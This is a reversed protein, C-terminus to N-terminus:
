KVRRVRVRGGLPDPFSHVPVTFKSVVRDWAEGGSKGGGQLNMTDCTIVLTAPRGDVRLWERAPRNAVSSAWTQVYPVDPAALWFRSDGVVVDSPGVYERVEELMAPISSERYLWWGGVNAALNIAMFASVALLPLARAQRFGVAAYGLALVAFPAMLSLYQYTKNPTISFGLGLCCAALAPVMVKHDRRGRVLCFLVGGLMLAAPLAMFPINSSKLPFLYRQFRSAERAANALFMTPRIGNAQLQNFADGPAQAIYVLYPAFALAAGLVFAAFGRVRRRGPHEGKGSRTSTRVWLAFLFVPALFAGNPHSLAALAGLAGGLLPQWVGSRDRLLFYLGWVACAAVTPEMRGWRASLLFMLEGSLLLAALPPAWSDRGFLRRGLAWTGALTLGGMAVSLLRIRLWGFGFVKFVGALLLLHFPPMWYTHREIGFFGRALTTGLFGHVALNYAPNGFWGEDVGLPPYHSLMILATALYVGVVALFLGGPRFDKFFRMLGGLM